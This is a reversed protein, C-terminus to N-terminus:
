FRYRVSLTPIFGFLGDLHYKCWSEGDHGGAYLGFEPRLDFSLQLPFWFTYELGVQCNVTFLVSHRGLNGLSLGPGVYVGWEGRNTWRPQAVMFNYNCTAKFGLDGFWNLGADLEIFDANHVTHQYSIEPGGYLRGGIARPQASAAVTFGLAVALVMFLKKM